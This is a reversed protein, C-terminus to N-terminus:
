STSSYDLCNLNLWFFLLFSMIPYVEWVKDGALSLGLILLPPQLDIIRTAQGTITSVSVEDKTYDRLV